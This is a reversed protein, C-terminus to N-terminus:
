IHYFNELNFVFILYPSIGQKNSIFLSAATSLIENINNHKVTM